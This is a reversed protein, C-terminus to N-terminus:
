LAQVLRAERRSEQRLRNFESLQEDEDLVALGRLRRETFFNHEEVDKISMLQDLIAADLDLLNLVQSVRARSVGFRQAVQSQSVVSPENLVRAYTLAQELPSPKRIKPKAERIIQRTIRENTKIGYPPQGQMIVLQQRVRQLFVPIRIKATSITRKTQYSRLWEQRSARKALLSFPSRLTPVLTADNM